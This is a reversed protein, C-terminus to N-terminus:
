GRGWCTSGTGEDDLDIKVPVRQVVKVYNGLRMRRRRMLSFWLAGGGAQISDVHGHFVMEQIRMWVHVEVPQGRGCTREVADTFDATVWVDNNVLGLPAPMQQGPIVYDGAGREQKTVRWM